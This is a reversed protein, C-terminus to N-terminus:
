LKNPLTQNSLSLRQNWVFLGDFPLILNVVKRMLDRM